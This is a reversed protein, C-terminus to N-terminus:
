SKDAPQKRGGDKTRRVAASGATHYMWAASIEPYHVGAANEMPQTLWLTLLANVPVSGSGPPVHPQAQSCLTAVMGYLVWFVLCRDLSLPMLNERTLAGAAAALAPSIPRQQNLSCCFNMRVGVVSAHGHFSRPRPALPM